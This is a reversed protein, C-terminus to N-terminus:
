RLPLSIRWTDAEPQVDDMTFGLETALELMRQNEKLVTAVLRQTGRQRLHDILKKM